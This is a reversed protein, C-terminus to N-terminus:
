ASASPTLAVITAVPLTTWDFAAADINENRCFVGHWGCCKSTSSLLSCPVARPPPPPPPLPLLVVPVRVTGDDGRSSGEDDVGCDGGTICRSGGDNFCRPLTSLTNCCREAGISISAGAASVRMSEIRASLERLYPTRRAIFAEDGDDTGPEDGGGVVDGETQRVNRHCSM